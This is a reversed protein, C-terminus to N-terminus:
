ELLEVIANLDKIKGEQLTRELKLIRALVSSEVFDGNRKHGKQNVVKVKGAGNARKRKKGKPLSATSRATVTEKSKFSPVKVKSKKEKVM